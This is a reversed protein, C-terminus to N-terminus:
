MHDDRSFHAPRRAKDDSATAAGTPATASVRLMPPRCNWLVMTGCQAAIRDTRPLSAIALHHDPGVASSQWAFIRNWIAGTRRIHGLQCVHYEQISSEKKYTQSPCLYERHMACKLFRGMYSRRLSASSVACIM